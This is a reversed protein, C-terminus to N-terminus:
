FPTRREKTSDTKSTPKGPPQSRLSDAELAPSVGETGPDPLGRFFSIVVWEMTRAQLIGHVSSGPLSSDMPTCLTPCLPTVLVKM